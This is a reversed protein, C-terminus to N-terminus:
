RRQRRGPPPPPPAHKSQRLFGYVMLLCFGVGFAWGWATHHLARAIAVAGFIILAFLLVTLLVALLRSGTM